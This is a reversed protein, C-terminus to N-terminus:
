EQYGYLWKQAKFPSRISSKPHMPANMAPNNMFM